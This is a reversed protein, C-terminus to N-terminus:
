GDDTGNDLWWGFRYAKQTDDKLVKVLDFGAGVKQKTSGGVGHFM